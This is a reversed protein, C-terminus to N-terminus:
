SALVDYMDIRNAPPSRAIGRASSERIRQRRVEVTQPSLFVLRLGALMEDSLRDQRNGLDRWALDVGADGQSEPTAELTL